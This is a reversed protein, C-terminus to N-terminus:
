SRVWQLIKEGRRKGGAMGPLTKNGLDETIGVCSNRRLIERGGGRPWRWWRRMQGEIDVWFMEGQFDKYLGRHFHSGGDQSM